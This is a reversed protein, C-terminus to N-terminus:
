YEKFNTTKNNAINSITQRSVNFIKSIDEYTSGESRLYKITNAEEETVKSFNFIRLHSEPFRDYKDQLNESYTGAYLHYPSVCRKNDCTHCVIKGEPIRGFYMIYAIRHAHITTDYWFQGYGNKSLSGTWNWCESAQMKDIYKFFRDKTKRDFIDNTM